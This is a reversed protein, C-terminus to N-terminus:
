EEWYPEFGAGRLAAARLKMWHKPFDAAKIKKEAAAAQAKDWTALLVEQRKLLAANHRDM